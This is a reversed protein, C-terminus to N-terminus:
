QHFKFLKVAAPSKSKMTTWIEAAIEHPHEYQHPCGTAAECFNSKWAEPIEVEKQMEVDWVVVRSNRLAGAHLSIPFFLWRGRWLAYPADATDPNPRLAAQLAPSINASGPPVGLCEYDWQTKYFTRWTALNRKQALHVQEHRLIENRRPSEYVARTMRITSANTTHPLGEKCRPDVIELLARNGDGDVQKIRELVVCEDFTETNPIYLYWIIFILLIAAFLFLRKTNLLKM